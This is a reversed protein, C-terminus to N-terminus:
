LSCRRKLAQFEAYDRIYDAPDYAASALAMLVADSSYRYQVAWTMPPIYLGLDPADLAFEQSHTGDDAVVRCRGHVCVLFQHLRRHAHRHHFADTSRDHQALRQHPQPQWGRAGAAIRCAARTAV